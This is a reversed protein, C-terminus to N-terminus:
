NDEREDMFSKPKKTKIVGLNILENLSDQQNKMIERWDRYRYEQQETMEVPEDRDQDEDDVPNHDTDTNRDQLVKADIESKTDEGKIVFTRKYLKKLDNPHIQEKCLKANKESDYDM